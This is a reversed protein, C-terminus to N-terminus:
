QKLVVHMKKITWPIKKIIKEKDKFDLFTCVCYETGLSHNESDGLKWAMDLISTIVKHNIHKM